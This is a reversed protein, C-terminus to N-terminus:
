HLYKLAQARTKLIFVARLNKHAKVKDFMLIVKEDM